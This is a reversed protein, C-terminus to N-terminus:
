PHGIKTVGKKINLFSKNWEIAKYKCFYNFQIFLKLIFTRIQAESQKIRPIELPKLVIESIFDHYRKRFLGDQFGGFQNNPGAQVKKYRVIPIATAKIQCEFCVFFFVAM